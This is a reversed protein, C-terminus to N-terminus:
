PILLLIALQFPLLYHSTLSTNSFNSLNFFNSFNFSYAKCSFICKKFATPWLKKLKEVM